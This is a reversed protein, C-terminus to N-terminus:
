SMFNEIPYANLINGTKDVFIQITNSKRGMLDTGIKNNFRYVVSYATSKTSHIGKAIAEDVLTKVRSVSSNSESFRSSNLNSRSNYFHGSKIHDIARQPGSKYDIVAGWKGKTVKRQSDVLDQVCMNHAWVTFGWLPSGVFYTHDEAVRMNYVTVINDTIYRSDLPIWQGDHSRLEDGPEIAKAATWGKDRVWFPHEPTTEIERGGLGMVMVQAQNEFVEEVQRLTPVADPDSEDQALVWDSPVFEEIPKSGLPTSNFVKSFLMQRLLLQHNM